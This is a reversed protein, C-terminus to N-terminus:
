LTVDPPTHPKEDFRGLRDRPQEGRSARAATRNLSGIIDRTATSTVLLAKEAETMEAVDAADARHDVVADVMALAIDRAEDRGLHYYAYKSVLAELSFERSGDGIDTLGTPTGVLDPSLDFAPTFEAHEGDWFFAVNRLHDDDIRMALRFALRSFLERGQKPPSTSLPRLQELLQPYSGGSPLHHQAVTMGSLVMRRRGADRDFRETLLVLDSRPDVGQRAVRLLRATPVDIGAQEAVYIAAREAKILPSVRDYPTEFKALWERGDLTVYAKPQSGGAATLTNRVARERDAGLPEANDIAAAAEAVIRLSGGGARPRYEASSEQFDLAGVRDSGSMLMYVVDSLKDEMGRGLERNIVQRGWSDPMADRITSPMGHGIDPPFPRSDLPLEPGLAIRNPRALYSNAYRFALGSRVNSPALVGAVVPAM